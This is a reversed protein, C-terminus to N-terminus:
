SCLYCKIVSPSQCTLPQAMLM